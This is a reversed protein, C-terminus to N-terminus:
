PRRILRIARRLLWILTAVAIVFAILWLVLPITLDGPLLWRVPQLMYALVVLLLDRM